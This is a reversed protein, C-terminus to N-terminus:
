VGKTKLFDDEKKRAEIHATLLDIDYHKAIRVVAFLIDALEDGIKDKDVVYKKDLKDRNQFYYSEKMLILKSLEGVQKSLEIVAGEVGWPKGEIKEFREIIKETIEVAEKFDM